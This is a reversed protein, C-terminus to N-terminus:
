AMARRAETAMAALRDLWPQMTTAQACGLEDIPGGVWGQLVRDVDPDSAQVQALRGDDLLVRLWEQHWHREVLAVRHNVKIGGPIVRAQPDPGGAERYEPGALEEAAAALAARERTSLGDARLVWGFARGVHAGLRGRVASWGPFRGERQWDTMGQDLARTLWDRFGASPAHIARCFRETPFRRVISAGLLLTSGVTASGTGLIKRSRVWLDRAGIARSDIGYDRYVGAAADLLRALHAGRVGPGCGPLVIGFCGQDADLYVVGGGLARRYVPLGGAAGNDIALEAVDVQSPGLCIHARAPRAWLLVPAADMAASEAVAYWTAHLQAPAVMGLDVFRAATTM